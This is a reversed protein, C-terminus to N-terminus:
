SVCFIGFPEGVLVVKFILKKLLDSELLRWLIFMEFAPSHFVMLLELEVSEQLKTKSM